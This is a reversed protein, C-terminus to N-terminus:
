GGRLNEQVQRAMAAVDAALMAKDIIAHRKESFV